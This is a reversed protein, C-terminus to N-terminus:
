LNKRGPDFYTVHLISIPGSYLACTHVLLLLQMWASFHPHTINHTMIQDCNHNALFKIDCHKMDDHYLMETPRQVSKM